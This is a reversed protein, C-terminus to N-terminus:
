RRSLGAPRWALSLGFGTDDFMDGGPFVLAARLSLNRNIELDAGLDFNLNIETKDDVIDCLDGGACVDISVRPHLYPTLALPSQQFTFRHGLSAGLPIRVLTLPDGFSPYIGGTLVIDLPQTQSARAVGVALGGGILLRADGGDPDAIGAELNFQTTASMGERWQAFVSTGADGGAAVGFNYERQEIRPAQMAPYNWAQADASATVGLALGLAAMWGTKRVNM